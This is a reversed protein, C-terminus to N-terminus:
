SQAALGPDAVAVRVASVLAGSFGAVASLPVADAGGTPGGSGGPGGPGNPAVPAAPLFALTVQLTFFLPTLVLTVQVTFSAFAFLLM